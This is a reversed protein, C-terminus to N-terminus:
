NPFIGAEERNARKEITRLFFISIVRESYSLKLVPMFFQYMKRLINEKIKLYTVPFIKVVSIVNKTLFKSKM